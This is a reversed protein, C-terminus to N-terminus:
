SATSRLSALYDQVLKRDAETDLNKEVVKTAAAISLEVAEKRLEAVARDRELAIERRARALLEEQEERGKAVMEERLKEGALRGQGLMDQAETRARAIQGQYDALLRQADANAKAADDLQQRIRAERAEVQSLIAPWAFKSLLFMLIGFVVLTWIILGGNITFPGGSAEAAHEGEQLVLSFALLSTV